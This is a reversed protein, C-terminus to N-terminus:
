NYFIEVGVPFWDAFIRDKM